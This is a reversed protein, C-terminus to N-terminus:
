RCVYLVRFEGAPSGFPNPHMLRSINVFGVDRLAKILSNERAWFAYTNDLSNRVRRARQEPTAHEPHEMYNRGRYGGPIEFEESLRNGFKAECGAESTHTYLVMTDGTVDRLRRLIDVFVEAALHHLIGFFLVLDYRGTTDASMERVDGLVVEVNDLGYAQAALNARDVYLQRGEVGLVKKAGAAGFEVAHCGEACALDLVTLDEMRGKKTIYPISDIIERGIIKLGRAKTYYPEQDATLTAVGDGFDFRHCWPIEPKLTALRGKIEELPLRTEAVQFNLEAM